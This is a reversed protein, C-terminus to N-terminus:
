PPLIDTLVEVRTLRRRLEAVTNEVTGLYSLNPARTLTEVDGTLARLGYAIAQQDNKLLYRAAALRDETTPTM